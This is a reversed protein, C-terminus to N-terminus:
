SGAFFFRYIGYGVLGLVIIQGILCPACPKIKNM